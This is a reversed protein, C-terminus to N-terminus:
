EGLSQQAAYMVPIYKGYMEFHRTVDRVTLEEDQPIRTGDYLYLGSLARDEENNFVVYKGFCRIDRIVVQHEDQRDKFDPFFLLFWPRGAELVSLLEGDPGYHCAQATSEAIWNASEPYFDRGSGLKGVTAVHGDPLVLAWLPPDKALWKPIPPAFEATLEARATAIQADLEPSIIGRAYLKLNKTIQSTDVDAGTEFELAKRMTVLYPEAWGDDTVVLQGQREDPKGTLIFPAGPDFNDYHWQDFETYLGLYPNDPDDFPRVAAVEADMNKAAPGAIGEAGAPPSYDGGDETGDNDSGSQAVEIRIVDDPDIGEPLERSLISGTDGGADTAADSMSAPNGGDVLPGEDPQTDEDGSRFVCGTSIVLTTTLILYILYRV